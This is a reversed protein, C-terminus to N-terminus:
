YRSSFYSKPLNYWVQQVKEYLERSNCTRSSKLISGIYSWVNEILNLDPLNGPWPLLPVNRNSLFAQRSYSFHALAKDQELIANKSPFVMCEM